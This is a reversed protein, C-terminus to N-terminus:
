AETAHYFAGSPASLQTCKDLTIEVSARKKGSNATGNEAKVGKPTIMGNVDVSWMDAYSGYYYDCIFPSTGGNENEVPNTSMWIASHSRKTEGPFITSNGWINPNDMFNDIVFRYTVGAYATMMANIGKVETGGIVNAVGATTVFEKFVNKQIDAIYGRGCVILIEKSDTGGTNAFQDAAAYFENATIASNFTRSDGGQNKIQWLLSGSVPNTADLVAPIDDVMRVSQEQMMAGMAQAVKQHAYYFTGDQAKLYTLRNASEYDIEVSKDMQGIVNQYPIPVKFPDPVTLRDIINGASGRDSVQNGVAFDASTFATAGNPNSYFKVKAAGASTNQVYALCGTVTDVMLHGVIIHQFKDQQFTMDITNGSASRTLVVATPFDNPQRYINFIRAGSKRHIPAAMQAAIISIVSRQFRPAMKPVSMEVIRQNMENQDFVSVLPLNPDAFPTTLAM